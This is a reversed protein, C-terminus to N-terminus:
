HDTEAENEPRRDSEAGQRNTALSRAVSPRMAKVIQGKAGCQQALVVGSSVLWARAWCWLGFRKVSKCSPRRAEHIAYNNRNAETVDSQLLSSGLSQGFRVGRPGRVGGGRSRAPRRGGQKRASGATRHWGQESLLRVRDKTSQGQCVASLVMKFVTRM